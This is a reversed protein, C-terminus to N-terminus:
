FGNEIHRRDLISVEAFSLTMSIQSPSQGKDDSDAFFDPNENPMYNVKCETLVSPMVRNIYQNEKMNSYFLIDFESPMTLFASDTNFVPHMHYKMVRIIEHVAIMEDRNRPTFIFQYSFTRQGVTEFLFELHPNMVKRTVSGFVKADGGGLNLAGKGAKVVGRILLDKLLKTNDAGLGANAGTQNFSNIISRAASGLQNEALNYNASYNVEVGPPMYLVVTDKLTKNRGLIDTKQTITRNEIRNNEGTQAIAEGQRQGGSINLIDNIIEGVSVTDAESEFEGEFKRLFEGAVLSGIGAARFTEQLGIGEVEFAQFMIFHGPNTERLIDLPYGYVGGGESNESFLDNLAPDGTQNQGTAGSPNVGLDSPFGSFNELSGFDDFLNDPRPM